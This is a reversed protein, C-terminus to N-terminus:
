GYRGPYNRSLRRAAFTGSSLIGPMIFRKWIRRGSPGHGYLNPATDTDTVTTGEWICFADTMAIKMCGTQDKMPSNFERWAGKPMAMLDEMTFEPLVDDMQM